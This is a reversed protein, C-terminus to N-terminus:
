RKRWEQRWERALRFLESRDDHNHTHGYSAAVEAIRTLLAAEGAPLTVAPSAPVPGTGVEREITQGPMM